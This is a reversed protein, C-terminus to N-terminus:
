AGVGSKGLAQRLEHRPKRMLPYQKPRRKKVRPEIRDPRTPNIRLEALPVASSSTCLWRWADTFSIRDPPVGQARASAVCVARVLNYVLVFVALEKLVGDVTKCRLVDMGLTIKLERLRKEIEWRAGYLEALTHKPYKRPDLLTTVLTVETTRYGPRTVRYRLERLDLSAPLQAFTKADCWTPCDAPKFWRVVQDTPGLARLWKSTPLGTRQGKPFQGAHKRGRKFNVITKQHARFV